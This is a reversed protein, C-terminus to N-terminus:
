EEGVDRRWDDDNAEVMPGGLDRRYREGCTPCRYYTWSAPARQGEILVTARIWQVAM